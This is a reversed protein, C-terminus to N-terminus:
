YYCLRLQLRMDLLLDKLVSIDNDRLGFIGEHNSPERLADAIRQDWSVVRLGLGTGGGHSDMEKMVRISTAIAENARSASPPNLEHLTVSWLEISQRLQEDCRGYPNPCPGPVERIIEVREKSVAHYAVQRLQSLGYQVQLAIDALDGSLELHNEGSVLRVSHALLYLLEEGARDARSLWVTAKGKYFFDDTPRKNCLFHFEDRLRETRRLIIREDLRSVYAESEMIQALDNYGACVIGSPLDYIRESQQGAAATMAAIFSIALLNSM